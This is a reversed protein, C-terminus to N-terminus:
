AALRRGGGPTDRRSGEEVPGLAGSRAARIWDRYLGAAERSYSKRRKLAEFSDAPHAADYAKAALAEIIAFQTDSM